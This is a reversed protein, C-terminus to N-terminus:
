QPALNIYSRIRTFESEYFGGEVYEEKEKREINNIRTMQIETNGGVTHANGDEPGRGTDEEKRVM